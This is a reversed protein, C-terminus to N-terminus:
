HCAPPTRRFYAFYQHSIRFLRESASVNAGDMAKPLGDAAVGIRPRTVDITQELVDTSSAQGADGLRQSEVFQSM